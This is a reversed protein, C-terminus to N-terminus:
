PTFLIIAKCSHCKFEIKTPNEKSGLEAVRALKHNCFKCKIWEGSAGVEARREGLFNKYNNTM